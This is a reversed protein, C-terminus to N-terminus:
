DLDIEDLPVEFPVDFTESAEFRIGMGTPDSRVVRALAPVIGADTLLQLQVRAGLPAPVNTRLYAGGASMNELDSLVHAKRGVINWDAKLDSQVRSSLRLHVSSM